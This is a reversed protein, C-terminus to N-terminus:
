SKQCRIKKVWPVPAVTSRQFIPIVKVSDDSPLPSLIIRFQTLDTHSFEARLEIFELLKTNHSTPDHLKCMCDPDRHPYNM